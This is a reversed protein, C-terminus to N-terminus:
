IYTAFYFFFANSRSKLCKEQHDLHIIDGPLLHVWHYTFLKKPLYWSADFYLHTTDGLCLTLM